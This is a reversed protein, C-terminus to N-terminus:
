TESEDWHPFKKLHQEIGQWCNEIPALDSSNSCNFHNLNNDKKWKAVINIKSGGGQGSDNNEELIFNENQV